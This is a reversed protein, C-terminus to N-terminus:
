SLSKAWALKARGLLKVFEAQKEPVFELTRGEPGFAWRTYPLAEAAPLPGEAARAELERLKPEVAPHLLLEKLEDPLEAFARAVPDADELLAVIEAEGKEKALDLATKGDKNTKTRDADVAALLRM